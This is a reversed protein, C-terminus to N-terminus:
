IKGVICDDPRTKNWVEILKEQSYLFWEKIRKIENQKFGNNELIRCDDIALSAKKENSIIHFHPPPHEKSYIMIKINNIKDVLAKAEVIKGNYFYAGSNIFDKLHNEFEEISNLENFPKYYSKQM